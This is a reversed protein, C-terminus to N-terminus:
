ICRKCVKAPSDGFAGPRCHHSRMPTDTVQEGKLKALTDRADDLYARCSSVEGVSPVCREEMCNGLDHWANCLGGMADELAEVAIALNSQLFAEKAKLAGIIADSAKRAEELQARLSLEREASMGLLRAQEQREGDSEALMDRLRQMEAEQCACGTFHTVCKPDTM